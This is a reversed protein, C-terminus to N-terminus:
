PKPRKDKPTDYDDKVLKYVTKFKEFAIKLGPYQDCMNQVRDWEPFKDDWETPIHFTFNSSSLDTISITPLPSITIGGGITYGSGGNTITVTSISSTTLSAFDSSTLTITNSSTPLSIPQASSTTM